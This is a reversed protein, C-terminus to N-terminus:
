GRAAIRQHGIQTAAGTAVVIATAQGATMMTGSFAVSLRDGLPAEIDVPSEQNDANVSEGTLLAEDIKLGRAHLIRMDAPVRDGAQLIVIDGPVLDAVEVTKRGGDRLVTAHPSILNRIAGLAHEAKGEQVFGVVANAIVVAAIVAADVTHGLFMAATAAALLFYILASNFQALFRIVPHVTAPATLSNPGFKALRRLVESQDLGSRNGELLTLVGDEPLAHWAVEKDIQM